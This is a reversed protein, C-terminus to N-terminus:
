QHLAGERGRRELPGGRATPIEVERTLRTLPSELQRREMLRAVITPDIVCEGEPCAETRRRARLPRTLRTRRFQSMGSRDIGYGRGDRVQNGGPMSVKLPHIMIGALRQM